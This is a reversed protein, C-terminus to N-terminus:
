QAPLISEIDTRSFDKGVFLLPCAQEKALDYAFCDGFNLGAPHHGKGWRSYAQAVREAAFATVPVVEVGLGNVFQAAESGINRRAAVILTEALTGASIVIDDANELASICAEAEPENLLAAMIASTDIAIV